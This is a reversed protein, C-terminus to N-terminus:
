YENKLIEDVKEITLNEYYIKDIVMMPANVCAALCEVSRLSFKGDTTTEGIKIGLRKQLHAVIKESGCLMCSINTCVDIQHRGVQKLNFMTYFTAVEYMAISPMDLYDAVADMLPETLYGGNDEQVLMLASLVASQKQDAPYKALWHDIKQCITQSLQTEVM